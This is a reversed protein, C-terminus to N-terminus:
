FVYEKKKAGRKELFIVISFILLSLLIVFSTIPIAKKLGFNEFREGTCPNGCTWKEEDDM